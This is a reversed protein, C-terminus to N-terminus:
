ARVGRVIDALRWCHLADAMPVFGHGGGELLGVAQRGTCVALASDLVGHRVAVVDGVQALEPAVPQCRLWASAVAAMGGSAALARRWSMPGPQRPMREFPDVGCCALVWGGAFDACHMRTWDFPQRHAHLYATLLHSTTPVAAASM